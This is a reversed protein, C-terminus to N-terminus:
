ERAKSDGNMGRQDNGGNLRIWYQRIADPERRQATKLRGTTSVAVPRGRLAPDASEDCAAFFGDCDLYLTPM